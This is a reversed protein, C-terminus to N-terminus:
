PMDMKPPQLFSRQLLLFSGPKNSEPVLKRRSTVIDCGRANNPISGFWTVRGHGAGCRYPLATQWTQLLLAQGAERGVERQANVISPLFHLVHPQAFVTNSVQGREVWRHDGNVRCMIMCALLTMGCVAPYRPKWM